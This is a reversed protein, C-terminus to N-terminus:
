RLRNNKSNGLRQALILWRAVREGADELHARTERLAVDSSMPRTVTTELADISAAFLARADPALSGGIAVVPVGEAAGIRAVGLPTKGHLSQADIRGEGTIVLTAGRVRQALGVAEVVLDIGPRLRARLFGACAAGLGGAAGAGPADVPDGDIVNKATRYFSSLARDLRDVQAAYAGKQPGFTYAAGGPGSLPNDVDCAATFAVERLRPDLRSPDIRAVDSLDGGTMPTDMLDAARDYFRVGLSQLMGAGGDVTASGGLGVIIAACGRDLAAGILEGTGFSTTRTPDRRAAPVLALGSAAAMEIVATRGDDLLGYAATINEGLPGTVQTEVIEGHGAAVLAAVTGEGGDAMPVLDYRANPLARRMGAAIAEAADEAALSEKFSDPAIVIKM